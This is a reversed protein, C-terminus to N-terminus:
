NLTNRASPANVKATLLKYLSTVCLAIRLLAILSAVSTQRVAGLWRVVRRRGVASHFVYFDNGACM